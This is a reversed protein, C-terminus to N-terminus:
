NNKQGIRLADVNPKLPYIVQLDSADIVGDDNDDIYASYHMISYYDYPGFAEAEQRITWAPDACNLYGCHLNIYDDRDNRLHEHHLGAVHGMEHLIGRYGCWDSFNLPQGGQPAEAITGDIM